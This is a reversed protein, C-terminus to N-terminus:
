NPFTNDAYTQYAEEETQGAFMYQQWDDEGIKIRIKGDQELGSYDVIVAEMKEPQAEDMETAEVAHYYVSLTLENEHESRYDSDYVSITGNRGYSTEWIGDSFVATNSDMADIVAFRGEAANWYGFLLTWIENFQEVTMEPAPTVPSQEPKTDAPQKTQEKQEQSSSETIQSNSDPTTAGSEEQQSTGPDASSDGSPASDAQDGCAALTLVIAIALCLAFLRKM